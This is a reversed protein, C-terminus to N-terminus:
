GQEKKQDKHIELQAAKLGQQAAKKHNKFEAAKAFDVIAEHNRGAKLASYGMMLATRGDNPNLNCSKQFAQYALVAEGQNYYITGLTHWLRAVQKSKLAKKLISIAKDPQHAALYAAAIKEYHHSTQIWQLALEYQEAAKEPVGAAMYLDGLLIIDEKKQQTLQNHIKLAAAAKDYKEDRININILMKWWRPEDPQRELLRCITQMAEQNKGAEMCAHALSELWKLRVTNQSGNCLSKLLTYANGPERAMMMCGAAQFLLDPDKKEQYQWAKQMYQGARSFQQLDFCAKGMNQWLGPTKDYRSVAKEYVELADQSKKQIMFVNGLQFFVRYDTKEQRQHICEKLLNEAKVYNKKEMAQGAEYLAQQEVRNLQREVAGPINCEFLSLVQLMLLCALMKIRKRNMLFAEKCM